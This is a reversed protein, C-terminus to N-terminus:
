QQGAADLSDRETNWRVFELQADAERDFEFLEYRGDARVNVQMGAVLRIWDDLSVEFPGPIQTPPAVQQPAGIAFGGGGGALTSM